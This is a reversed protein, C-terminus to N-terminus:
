IVELAAKLVNVPDLTELQLRLKGISIRSMDLLDDILRAQMRAGSSICEIAHATIDDVGKRRALVQTWGLISNMPTRLEHSLCALFDDKIRGSKEAELRSLRENELLQREREARIRETLDEVLSIRHRADSAGAKMFASIVRVPVESKDRRVLRIMTDIHDSDENEHQNLLEEYRQWDDPHTIDKSKMELLEARSYGLMACFKENVELLRGSTISVLKIGVPSSQFIARFQEESVRLALETEKQRTLDQVLTVFGNTSGSSDVDPVYTVRVYRNGVGRYPVFSEFEVQEGTLVKEVYPRIKQFASEGLVEPISKGYTEESTTGFWTEYMHNTMRYKM